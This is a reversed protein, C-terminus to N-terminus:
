NIWGLWTVFTMPKTCAFSEVASPLGWESGVWRVRYVTGDHFIDWEDKQIEREFDLDGLHRRSTEEIVRHTFIEATVERGNRLPLTIGLKRGSEAFQDEEAVGPQEPCAM